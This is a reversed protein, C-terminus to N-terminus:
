VWAVGGRIVKCIIGCDGDYAGGDNFELGITKELDLRYTIWVGRAGRFYSRDDGGASLRGSSVQYVTSSRHAVPSRGCRGFPGKPHFASATEHYIGYTDKVKEGGGGDRTRREFTRKASKRTPNHERKPSM